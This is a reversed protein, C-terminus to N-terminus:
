KRLTTGGTKDVHLFVMPNHSSPLFQIAPLNFSDVVLQRSLLNFLKLVFSRCSEVELDNLKCFSFLSSHSFPFLLPHNDSGISFLVKKVSECSFRSNTEEKDYSSFSVLSFASSKDSSSSSSSLSCRSSIKMPILPLSFLPSADWSSQLLFSGCSSSLRCDLPLLIDSGEFKGGELFAQTWLHLVQIPESSLTIQFNSYYNLDSLQYCLPKSSSGYIKLCVSFYPSAALLSEVIKKKGFMNGEIIIKWSKEKEENKSGDVLSPVVKLDSIFSIMIKESLFSSLVSSSYSVSRATSSSLSSATAELNFVSKLPNAPVQNYSDSEELNLQSEKLKIKIMVSTFEQVPVTINMLKTVRPPQLWSKRSWQYYGYEEEEIERSTEEEGKQHGDVQYYSPSSVCIEYHSINNFHNKEGNMLHIANSYMWSWRCWLPPVIMVIHRDSRANVGSELHNGMWVVNHITTGIVAVMIKTNAFLRPHKYFPFKSLNVVKWSFGIKEVIKVLDILNLIVRNDDRQVFLVDVIPEDDGEEEFAEKERHNKVSFGASSSSLSYPGNYYKEAFSSLFHTFNRFKESKEKMLNTSLLPYFSSPHFRYGSYYSSDYYPIGISLDSFFISSQSSSIFSSLTSFFSTASVLNDSFSHLLSSLSSTSSFQRRIVEELVAREASSAVDVVMIVDKPINSHYYKMMAYYLPELLDVLIHGPHFTILPVIFIPNDVVFCDVGDIHYSIKKGYYKDNNNSYFFEEWNSRSLLIPSSVGSKSRKRGSSHILVSSNANLSCYECRSWVGNDPVMYQEHTELTSASPINRFSDKAFDDYLLDNKLYNIFANSNFVRCQRLSVNQAPSGGSLLLHSSLVAFSFFILSLALM